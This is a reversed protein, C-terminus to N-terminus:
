GFIRVKLGAALSNLVLLTKWSKSSAVFHNEIEDIKTQDKIKTQEKENLVLRLASTSKESKVHSCFSCTSRVKNMWIFLRVMSFFGINGSDYPFMKRNEKTLMSFRPFTSAKELNGRDFWRDDCSFWNLVVNTHNLWSCKEQRSIFIFSSLFATRIKTLYIFILM